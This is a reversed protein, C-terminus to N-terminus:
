SGHPGRAPEQPLHRRKLPDAFAGPDAVLLAARDDAGGSGARVTYIAESPEDSAAAHQGTSAARLPDFRIAAFRAAFIPSSNPATRLAPPPKVNTLEAGGPGVV